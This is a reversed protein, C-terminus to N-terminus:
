LGLGVGPWVAPWYPASVLDLILSGELEQRDGMDGVSGENPTRPTELSASGSPLHIDRSVARLLGRAWRVAPARGRPLVRLDCSCAPAKVFDGPSTVVVWCPGLDVAGQTEPFPVVSRFGQWGPAAGGQAGRPAKFALTDSISKRGARAGEERPLATPLTGWTSTFTHNGSNHTNIKRRNNAFTQLRHQYEDASYTKQHQFSGLPM